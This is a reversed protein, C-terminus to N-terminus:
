ATLRWAVLPLLVVAGGIVTAAADALEPNGKGSRKDYVEKAIAILVCLAAGVAASHLGGLSAALGGYIAHLCKDHPITPLAMEIGWTNCITRNLRWWWSREQAPYQGPVCILEGTDTDIEAITSGTWATQLRALINARLSAFM